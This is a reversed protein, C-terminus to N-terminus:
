RTASTGETSGTSREPGRQLSGVTAPTDARPVGYDALIRDIDRQRRSIVADLSDRLATEGRRVGMAIDFVFPLYPVDVEPSVPVVRLPVASKRAFYGALPGWVIAVDIEGKELARV